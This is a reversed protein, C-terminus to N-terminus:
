RQEARKDDEALVLPPRGFRARFRNIRDLVRPRCLIARELRHKGPFDVLLLGILITLLGPGPVGPLSLVIGALILVIGIVNKLGFWAWRALPHRDIWLGRQGRHLFSAAPLALLVLTVAVASLAFTAVFIAAGILLYNWNLAPM